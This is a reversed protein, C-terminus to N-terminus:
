WNKIKSGHGKKNDIYKVYEYASVYDEPNEIDGETFDSESFPYEADLIVFQLLKTMDIYRGDAKLVMEGIILYKEGPLLETLLIGRYWNTCRYDKSSDRKRNSSYLVEGYVIPKEPIQIIFYENDEFYEGEDLDAYICEVLRFGCYNYKPEDVFEAIVAVDGHTVCDEINRFTFNYKQEYGSIDITPAKECGFFVVSFQLVIAAVLLSSIWIIKRKM